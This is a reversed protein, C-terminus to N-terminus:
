NGGICFTGLFNSIKGAGLWLIRFFKKAGCFFYKHTPPPYIGQFIVICLCVVLLRNPYPILLSFHYFYCDYDKKQKLNMNVIKIYTPFKWTGGSFFWGWGFHWNRSFIGIQGLDRSYLGELFPEIEGEMVWSLHFSHFKEPYTM